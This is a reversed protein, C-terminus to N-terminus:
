RRFGGSPTRNWSADAPVQGELDANGQGEASVLKEMM